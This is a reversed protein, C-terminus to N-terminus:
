YTLGTGILHFVAGTWALVLGAAVLVISWIRAFLGPLGLRTTWVVFANWLFVVIALPFIVITLWHLVAIIPDFTGNLAFTQFMTLITVPWAVM